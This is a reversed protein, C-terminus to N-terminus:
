CQSQYAGPDCFDGPDPGGDAGTSGFAVGIVLLAVWWAVILVTVWHMAWWIRWNERM